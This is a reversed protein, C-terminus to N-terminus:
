QLHCRIICAPLPILFTCSNLNTGALTFRDIYNLLNVVFMIFIIFYKQRRSGNPDTSSSESTRSKKFLRMLRARKGNGYKDSISRDSGYAGNLNMNSPHRMRISDTRRTKMNSPNLLAAHGSSSKTAAKGDLVVVNMHEADPINKNFKATNMTMTVVGGNNNNEDRKTDIMAAMAIPSSTSDSSSSSSSTTDSSALLAKSSRASATNASCSGGATALSKENQILYLPHQQHTVHSPHDGYSKSYNNFGTRALASAVELLPDALPSKMHGDNIHIHSSKPKIEDSEDSNEEEDGSNSSEENNDADSDDDFHSRNPYSHSISRKKKFKFLLEEKDQNSQQRHIKISNSRTPQTQTTFEGHQHSNIHNPSLKQKHASDGSLMRIFTTKLDSTEHNHPKKNSPTTVDAEDDDAHGNRMPSLDKNNNNFSNTRLRRQLASKANSTKQEILEIADKYLGNVNRAPSNRAQRQTPTATTESENARYHVGGNSTSMRKSLPRATNSSYDVNIIANLDDDYEDLEDSANVKSILKTSSPVYHFTTSNIM